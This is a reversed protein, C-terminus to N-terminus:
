RVFQESPNQDDHAWQHGALALEERQRFAELPDEGPEPVRRRSVTNLEKCRKKWGLGRAVGGRRM